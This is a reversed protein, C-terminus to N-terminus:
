KGDSGSSNTESNDSKPGLRTKTRELWTDALDGYNANKAASFYYHAKLLENIAFNCLGLHFLASKAEKPDDQLETWIEMAESIR